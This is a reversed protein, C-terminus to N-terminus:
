PLRVDLASCRVDFMSHEDRSGFFDAPLISPPTGAVGFDVFFLTRWFVGFSLDKSKRERRKARKATLDTTWVIAQCGLHWLRWIHYVHDHEREGPDPQRAPNYTKPPHM